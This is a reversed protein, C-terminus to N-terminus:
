FLTFMHHFVSYKYLQSINQLFINSLYSFVFVFFLSKVAFFFFRATMVNLLHDFIDDGTVLCVSM